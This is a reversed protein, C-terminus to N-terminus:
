DLCTQEIDRSVLLLQDAEMQHQASCDYGFLNLFFGEGAEPLLRDELIDNVIGIAPMRYWPNGHQNLQAIDRTKNLFYSADTVLM